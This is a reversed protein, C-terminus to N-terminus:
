ATTEAPAPPQDVAVPQAEAPATDEETPLPPAEGRAIAALRQVAKNTLMEIVLSQRGKDSNLIQLVRGAQDGFLANQRDIEAKVEEPAVELQEAEVLRGLVLARKLRQEARPRNEDNLQEQTKGEIKLYDALTLNQERLRGDLDELMDQLEQELLHPPYVITSQEVLQNLVTDSYERETSREAQRRLDERVRNQLEEFTQFEGLEKAFDDNFEPLNRQKVEKATVEFHATQGRLSENAYDEAFALDFKRTEGAAIGLVQKPFGPMPWDGTEDLQLAVDKDTMLFDSPNLGEGLFANIDLTAVDGLQAPREVPELVAQRERLNDLVRQVEEDAVAPATYPVRLARYDGLEVIPKLPVVFKLVMPKLQMEVMSGPGYAEIKEQDLAEAYVKQGLDDIAAEYVAREGYERVVYEYPAKGPRFGKVPYRKSIERAATQLAPKVRDESVEVTM